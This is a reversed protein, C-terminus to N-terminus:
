PDVVVCFGVISLAFILLTTAFGILFRRPSPESMDGSLVSFLRLSAPKRGPDGSVALQRFALSRLAHRHRRDAHHQWGIRASTHAAGGISCLGGAKGTHDRGFGPAAPGTTAAFQAAAM